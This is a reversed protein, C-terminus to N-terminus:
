FLRSIFLSLFYANTFILAWEVVRALSFEMRRAGEMRNARSFIMALSSM